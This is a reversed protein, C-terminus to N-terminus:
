FGFLTVECLFFLFFFVSLLVSNGVRYIEESTIPWDRESPINARKSRPRPPVLLFSVVCFDVNSPVGGDAVVYVPFAESRIVM